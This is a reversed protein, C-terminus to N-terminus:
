ADLRVRYITGRIRGDGNDNSRSSVYLYGGERDVFINNCGTRRGLLETMDLFPPATTPRGTHDNGFFPHDPDPTFRWVRGEKGMSVFLEGSGSIGIDYLNGSRKKEPDWPEFVAILEGTVRGDPARVVDRNGDLRVRVVISSTRYGVYLHDGYVAVGSPGLVEMEQQGGPYSITMRSGLVPRGAPAGAAPDRRIGDLDYQVVVHNDKAPVYLFRGVATCGDAGNVWGHPPPNHEPDHHPYHENSIVSGLSERPVVDPDHQEVVHWQRDRLDYRYVADTAHKRFEPLEAGSYACVFLNRSVEDFALACYPRAMLVDDRPPRSYDYLHFPPDTPAAFAVANHRVAQGAWQGPVVPECVSRDVRWLTGARDVIGQDVGGDGRHRGRSLVILEGDVIAMGRGWPVATTVRELAVERPIATTVEHEPVLAGFDPVREQGPGYPVQGHTIPACLLTVITGSVAIVRRDISM